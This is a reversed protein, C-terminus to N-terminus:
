LSPDRNFIDLLIEGYAPCIQALYYCITPVLLSLKSTEEGKVCHFTLALSVSGELNERVRSALSVAVASKGTGAIGSIWAVNQENSTTWKELDQLLQERTGEMCK